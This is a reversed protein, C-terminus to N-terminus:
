LLLTIGLYLSTDVSQALGRTLFPAGIRKSFALGRTTVSARPLKKSPLM